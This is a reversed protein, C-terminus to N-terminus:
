DSAWLRNWKYRGHVRTSSGNTENPGNVSIQPVSLHLFHSMTGDTSSQYSQRRLSEMLRQKQLSNGENAGSTEPTEASQQTWQRRTDRCVAADVEDQGAQEALHQGHTRDQPVAQRAAHASSRAAVPSHAAAVPRLKRPLRAAGLVGALRPQVTSEHPVAAGGGVAQLDAQLAAGDAEGGLAAAAGDQTVVPGQRHVDRDGPSVRMWFIREQGGNSSDKDM